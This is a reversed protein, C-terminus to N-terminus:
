VRRNAQQSGSLICQLDEYPVSHLIRMYGSLRNIYNFVVTQDCLQTLNPKTQNLDVAIIRYFM